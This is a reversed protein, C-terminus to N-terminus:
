YKKELYERIHDTSFEEECLLEELKKDKKKQDYTEWTSFNLWARGLDVHRKIYFSGPAITQYWPIVVNNSHCDYCARKFIEMIKAPAKIELSPDTKPNNIHAPFFQLLILSIIMYKLVKLM